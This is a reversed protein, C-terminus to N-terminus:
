LCSLVGLNGLSNWAVSLEVKALSCNNRSCYCWIFEDLCITQDNFWLGISTLYHCYCFIKCSLFNDDIIDLAWLGDWWHLDLGDCTFILETLDLGDGVVVLFYSSRFFGCCYYLLDNLLSWLQYFWSWNCSFENGISMCNLGGNEETIFKM